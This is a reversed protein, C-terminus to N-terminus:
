QSSSVKGASPMIPQAPARGIRELVFAVREAVPGRPLEVLTYGFGAWATAVADHTACAEEWGQAREGDGAYIKRWPPALFVAPAYRLGECARELHGPVPLGCLALYGAVDALGRDFVVPGRREAAEAHSRLEWGLMAEAFAARDVEPRAQGGIARQARIIARGGEPMCTLGRAALAAVLTSKGAGPGGTIVHFQQWRAM